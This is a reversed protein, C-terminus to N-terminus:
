VCAPFASVAHGKQALAQCAAAATSSDASVSLANVLTGACVAQETASLSSSVCLSAAREIGGGPKGGQLVGNMTGIICAQQVETDPSAKRCTDVFFSPTRDVYRYSATAAASRMMEGTYAGGDFAPAFRAVLSVTRLLHDQEEPAPVFRTVRKSLEWLCGERAWEEHPLSCLSFPDEPPFLVGYGPDFQVWDGLVSYVGSACRFTNDTEEPLVYSACRALAERTIQPIDNVGHPRTHLLYETIGHGIGHDCQTGASGYVGEFKTRVRGCFAVAEEMSKEDSFFGEMYGHFFGDNCMSVKKSLAAREGYTRYARLGLEHVLNHCPYTVEPNAAYLSALEDFASDLGGVDLATQIREIFCSVKSEETTRRECAAAGTLTQSFDGQEATVLVTGGETALLHNHYSWVGEEEFVFRWSENPPIPRRPDFDPFITHRPHTDSAPWFSVAQETKFVVATGPNIVISQPSFGSERLVVTVEREGRLDVPANGETFSFAAVSAVAIVGAAIGVGARRRLLMSM